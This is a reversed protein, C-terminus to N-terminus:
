FAETKNTTHEKKLKRWERLARAFDEWYVRIHGNNFAIKRAIEVVEQKERETLTKDYLLFNTVTPSFSANLIKRRERMVRETESAM